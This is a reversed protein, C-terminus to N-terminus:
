AHEANGFHGRLEPEQGRVVCYQCNLSQLLDTGPNWQCLTDKTYHFLLLREGQPKPIHALLVPPLAIGGLVGAGTASM